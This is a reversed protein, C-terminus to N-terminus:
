AGARVLDHLRVMGVCRDGEVVPMVSIQSPRDEMQQLAVYALVDPDVATPTSTMIDAATKGALVALDIRQLARRVDGDTVIGALHDADTLV